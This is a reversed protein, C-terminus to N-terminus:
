HTEPRPSWWRNARFQWTSEHRAFASTRVSRRGLGLCHRVREHGWSFFIWHRCIRTNAGLFVNKVSRILVYSFYKVQIEFIINEESPTWFLHFMNERDLVLHHTWQAANLFPVLTLVIFITSSHVAMIIALYKKRWFTMGLPKLLYVFEFLLPAALDSICPSCNAWLKTAKIFGAHCCSAGCHKRLRGAALPQM